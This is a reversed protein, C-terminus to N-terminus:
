KKLEYHRIIEDIEAKILEISSDNAKSLSIDKTLGVFEKKLKKFMGAKNHAVSRQFLQKM